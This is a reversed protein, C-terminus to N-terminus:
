GFFRDANGLPAANERAIREAEIARYQSAGRHIRRADIVVLVLLSAVVLAPWLM